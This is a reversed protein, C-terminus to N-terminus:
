RWRLPKAQPGIKRHEDPPVKLPQAPAIGASARAAGAFWASAAISTKRAEPLLARAGLRQFRKKSKRM